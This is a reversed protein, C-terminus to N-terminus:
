SLCSGNCRVESRVMYPPSHGGKTGKDYRNADGSRRLTSGTPRDREATAAKTIHFGNQETLDTPM